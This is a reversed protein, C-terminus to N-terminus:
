KNWQDINYVIREGVLKKFHVIFREKHNQREVIYFHCSSSIGLRRVASLDEGKIM